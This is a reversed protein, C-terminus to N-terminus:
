ALLTFSPGTVVSATAMIAASVLGGSRRKPQTAAFQHKGGDQFAGAIASFNIPLGQGKAGEHNRTFQKHKVRATPLRYFPCLSQACATSFSQRPPPDFIRM